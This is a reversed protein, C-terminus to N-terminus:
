ASTACSGLLSSKSGTRESRRKRVAAPPFCCPARSPPPMLEMRGGSRMGNRVHSATKFVALWGSKRRAWRSRGVRGRWAAGAGRFSISRVAAAFRVLPLYRVLAASFAGHQKASTGSMIDPRIDAIV